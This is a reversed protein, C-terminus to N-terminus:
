DWTLDEGKDWMMPAGGLYYGTRQDDPHDLRGIAVCRGLEIAESLEKTTEVWYVRSQCENCHRIKLSEAVEELEDWKKDCPKGIKQAFTAPCERLKPRPLRSRRLSNRIVAM